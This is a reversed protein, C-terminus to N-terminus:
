NKLVGGGGEGNVCTYMSSFVNCMKEEKKVRKEGRAKIVEPHVVGTSVGISIYYMLLVAKGDAPLWAACWRDCGGLTNSTTRVQGRGCSVYSAAHTQSYSSSSSSNDIGTRTIDGVFFTQIETTKSIQPIWSYKTVPYSEPVVVQGGLHARINVTSPDPSPTLVM